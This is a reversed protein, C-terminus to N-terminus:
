NVRKLPDRSTPMPLDKAWALLEQPKLNKSDKGTMEEFVIAMALGFGMFFNMCEKYPASNQGADKAIHTGNQMLRLMERLFRKAIILESNTM